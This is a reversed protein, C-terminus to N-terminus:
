KTANINKRDVFTVRLNLLYCRMIFVIMGEEKIDLTDVFDDIGCAREHGACAREKVEQEGNDINDQLYTNIICSCIQKICIAM